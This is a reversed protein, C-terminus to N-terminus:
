AGGRIQDLQAKAASGFLEDQINVIERIAKFSVRAEEMAGPRSDPYYPLSHRRHVPKRLMYCVADAGPEGCSVCLAPSLEWLFRKHFAAPFTSAVSGSLGAEEIIRYAFEYLRGKWWRGEIPAFVGCYAVKSLRKQMEQNEFSCVSIGVATAAHLSDYVVGPYALLVKDIWFILDKVQWTKGNSLPLGTRQISDAEVRRAGLLDVICKWDRRRKRRVQKVGESLSPAECTDIIIEIGCCPCHIAISM